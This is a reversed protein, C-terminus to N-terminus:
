CLRIMMTSMERKILQMPVALATETNAKPNNLLLNLTVQQDAANGVVSM